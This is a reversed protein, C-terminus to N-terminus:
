NLFKDRLRYIFRLILIGLSSNSLLLSIIVKKSSSRGNKLVEKGANITETDGYLVLFPYVSEYYKLKIEKQINESLNYKAVYDKQIKYLGQQREYRHKSSSSHSASKSLFRYVTTAEDLYKIKTDALIDLIWPFTGDCYTNLGMPLYKRRFLWTAPALFAKNILVDTFSDYYPLIKNKFVAKKLRGSAQIYFHLDTWVLGFDKHEELFDVQKQLKLPDIWYDDGECFAIYKGSCNPLIENQFFDIGKSHLNEKHYFIKFLNLHKKEYEKLIKATGDTSKDDTIIVEIPFNTKQMLFGDLADKIYSEHNYATCVVSVLVQKQESQTEKDTSDINM